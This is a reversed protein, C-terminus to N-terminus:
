RARADPAEAPSRAASGGQCATAPDAGGGGARGGGAGGGGAGGAGGTGGRADREARGKPVTFVRSQGPDLAVVYPELERERVLQDLWRAPDDLREYSLAFAGHHVPVLLRARLDEFAYLADLPSMHRDRFSRPRYRGIPLLAIDPRYRRGIEAFGSFYGSDGCFLVSPGDGRLVYCMAGEDRPGTHRVAATAVDVRRHQLSQGVGLEVVRAFGLDSVRHATRPPVVVTAARPLGALTPRHLHDRHGCTILVLDVDRLEAPSLGPAVARKVPGLWRGLMPDCVIALNAYRVLVTAHGAFTIAVQGRHVPPLPEVRPM